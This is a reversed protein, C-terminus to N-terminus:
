IICMKLSSQFFLAKGLKVFVHDTLESRCPGAAGIYSNPFCAGPLRAGRSDTAAHGM